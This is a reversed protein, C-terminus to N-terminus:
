IRVPFAVIRSAMKVPHFFHGTHHWLKSLTTIQRYSCTPPGPAQNITKSMNLSTQAFLKPVLPDFMTSLLAQWEPGSTDTDQWFREHRTMVTANFIAETQGGHPNLRRSVHRSDDGSGRAATCAAASTSRSCEFILNMPVSSAAPNFGPCFSHLCEQEFM